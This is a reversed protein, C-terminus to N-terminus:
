PSPTPEQLPPENKSERLEQDRGEKLWQRGKETLCYAKGYADGPSESNTARPGPRLLGKQVLDWGSEMFLVELEETPTYVENKDSPLNLVWDMMLPLYLDYDYHKGYVETNRHFLTENMFKRIFNEADHMTKVKRGESSLM